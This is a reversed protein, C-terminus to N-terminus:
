VKNQKWKLWSLNSHSMQSNSIVVGAFHWSSVELNRQSHSNGWPLKRSFSSLSIFLCTLSFPFFSRHNFKTATYVCTFGAARPLLTNRYPHGLFTVPVWGVCLSYTPSISLLKICKPATQLSPGTILEQYLDCQSGPDCSTTDLCSTWHALDGHRFPLIFILHVQLLVPMKYTVLWFIRKSGLSGRQFLPM